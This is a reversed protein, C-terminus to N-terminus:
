DAVDGDDRVDVVALGREDVLHQPLRARKALILDHLLAHHVGIGELPFSADRNQRLVGGDTPVAGLDVDDVCRPVGVEAAFDLANQAHDVAHQEDDVGEVAGHRLRAEHQAFREREAARRDDDDVLDIPRSGIRQADVVFHEVQEDLEFGVFRLEVRRDDVRRRAVAGRREVEILRELIERREELRDHGRDRRRRTIRLARELHQDRRDIV